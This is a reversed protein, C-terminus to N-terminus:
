WRRDSYVFHDPYIVTVSAVPQHKSSSSTPPRAAAVSTAAATSSTPAPRPVIAQLPSAAAAPLDPRRCCSRPAAAPVAPRPAIAQLPSAAASSPVAEPCRSPGRIAASRLPSARTSAAALLVVPRRCQRGIPRRLPLGNSSRRLPASLEPVIKVFGASARAVSPGPQDRSM